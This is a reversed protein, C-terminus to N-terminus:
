EFASGNDGTLVILRNLDLKINDLAKYNKIILTMKM